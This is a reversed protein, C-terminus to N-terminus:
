DEKIDVGLSKLMKCFLANQAKLNEIMLHQTEIIKEQNEILEKQNQILNDKMKDLSEESCM